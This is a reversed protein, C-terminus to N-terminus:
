KKWFQYWKKQQIADTKSLTELPKTNNWISTEVGEKLFIIRDEKTCEGMANVVEEALAFISHLVESDMSYGDLALEIDHNLNYFDTILGYDEDWSFHEQILHVMRYIHQKDESALINQCMRFIMESLFVERGMRNEIMKELEYISHRNSTNMMCVELVFEDNGLANLIDVDSNLWQEFESMSISEAM